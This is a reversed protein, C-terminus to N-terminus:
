EVRGIITTPSYGETAVQTARKVPADSKTAGVGTGAQVLPYGCDYCRKYQSGPASMYNSSSCSPCHDEQLSSPAPRQYTPRVSPSPNSPMPGSPVTTRPLDQGNQGGAKTLRDAWWNSM